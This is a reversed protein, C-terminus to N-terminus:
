PRAPATRLTLISVEPPVMFRFPLISTGIGTTVFLDIGGDRIHGATYKQGYSSPVIPSGLVPLRIQGGHTHGAIMLMPDRSILRDGTIIPLVDPSHQLVLLPGTGETEAALRRADDAYDKWVGIQQHDRLGLIRFVAGEREIVALAGDLVAYGNNTLEQKMQAGAINTDHNGMVAYVGLPASMGAIAKGIEDPQMRNQGPQGPEPSLFDGLIVVLDPEAANVAAAVAHFKEISGGNSGGHLDSIAAIRLGDLRQDWGKVSIDYERTVLIRPEVYYAYALM